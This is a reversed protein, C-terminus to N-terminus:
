LYLLLVIGTTFDGTNEYIYNLLVIGTTFDGTNENYYCYFLVLPLTVPIKM